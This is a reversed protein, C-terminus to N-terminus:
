PLPSKDPHHAPTTAAFREICTLIRIWDMSGKVVYDQAGAALARQRTAPNTSATFFLVPVAATRPTSRISELVQIGDMGPMDYDLIVLRPLTTRLFLLAQPGDAVAIADYGSKRILRVLATRSDANDEAVLIM